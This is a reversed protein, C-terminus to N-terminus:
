AEVIGHLFATACAADGGDLLCQPMATANLLAAMEIALISQLALVYNTVVFTALNAVANAQGAVNSTVNQAVNYLANAKGVVDGAAQEAAAQAARANGEPDSAASAALSVAANAQGAANGTVTSAIANAANAKGEADSGIQTTFDVAADASQQASGAIIEVAETPPNAITGPAGFAMGRADRATALTGEFAADATEFAEDSAAEADGVALAEWSAMTAIARDAVHAAGASPAAQLTTVADVGTALAADAADHVPGTAMEVAEILAVSSGAAVLLAAVMTGALLGM